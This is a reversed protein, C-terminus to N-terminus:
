IWGPVRLEGRLDGPVVGEAEKACSADFLTRAGHSRAGVLDRVASSEARCGKGIAEYVLDYACATQRFM